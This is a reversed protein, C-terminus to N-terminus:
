ARWGDVDARKRWQHYCEVGCFYEVYDTAERSAAASLPIEHQCVSCSVIPDPDNSDDRVDLSVRLHPLDSGNNVREVV